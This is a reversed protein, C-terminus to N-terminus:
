APRTGLWPPPGVGVRDLASAVPGFRDDGGVWALYADSLEDHTRAVFNWWMAVEEDFPVGGILIARVRGVADVTLEDAGPGVHALQGPGVTSGDVTVSGDAVILAHEYTPDLPFDTTGDLLDLEMGLHDTDRRAPSAAGAFRGVLVTASGRDLDVQPLDRHHEFSPQGNRTAEPQAIWLQVGHVEGGPGGPDEESHAIGAGATMLNLQGPRIVQESGLSDRHLAAGAFLWTVTQLGIHPHPAVEMGRGPPFTVPGMHDVFCWAGVTRRGRTPLTRRVPITGVEANRGEIVEVRAAGTHGVPPDTRDLSSGDTRM